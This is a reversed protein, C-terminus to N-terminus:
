RGAGGAGRGGAGAVAERIARRELRGAAMVTTGLKQAIETLVVPAGGWGFRAALLVRARDELGDLGRRVRPDPELWPRGGHEQWPCVARTWDPIAAGESLKATARPRGVPGTLEAAHEKMFRTAVRTLALGVPAALRGGKAADFADVAKDVASLGDAVLPWLLGARVEELPRGLSSELTRVLLPLESRVLEIKLRMAWRLDTEVLDVAGATAGHPPLELIGRRARALLFHYAAARAKEVAGLAVGERRALRVFGLLDMAGPEGLGSLVPEALLYKSSLSEGEADPVPWRELLGRLRAARQDNIVRHVAPPSRGLRRALASPEAAYWSAREILRREKISPPGREAFIPAGSEQDHRRLLRRVTEHARGYREAIREAAQNLTCGLACYAAARRLMRAELKEDIRTFASADKLREGQRSEFREVAALLFVLRPKGNEGRVRRAILGLKRYRDLTKRSVKWRECLAGAGVYSGAALEGETLGAAESLTEVLGSLDALVEAGSYARPSGLEPREGTIRFVIWDEPYDVAAEVQGALEEAAGLQRRVAEVAAFRAEGSLTALAPISLRPLPPM